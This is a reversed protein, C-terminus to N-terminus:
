DNYSMNRASLPVDCKGIGFEKHILHIHINLESTYEYSTDAFFFSYEEGNVIMRNRIDM